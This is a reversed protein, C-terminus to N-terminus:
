QGVTLSAFSVTAPANTSGGSLYTVLGPGGIGLASNDTATVQASAPESAGVLGRRDASGWGDSVTRAFRDAAIV